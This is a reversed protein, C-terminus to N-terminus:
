IEPGEGGGNRKWRNGDSNRGCDILFAGGLCVLKYVNLIRITMNERAISKIHLFLIKKEDLFFFFSFMSPSLPYCFWFISVDLIRPPSIFATESHVISNGACHHIWNEITFVNSEISVINDEPVVSYVPYNSTKRKFEYLTRILERILMM